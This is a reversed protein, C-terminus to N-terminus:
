LDVQEKSEPLFIINGIGMKMDDRASLLPVKDIRRVECRCVDANIRLLFM